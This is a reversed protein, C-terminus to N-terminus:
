RFNKPWVQSLFTVSLSVYLSSKLCYCFLVQLNQHVPQAHILQTGNCCLLGVAYHPQILLLTVLLDLSTIRGRATANTDLKLSGLALFVNVHLHDPLQLLYWILLPQSQIQEANPLSPQPRDKQQRCSSWPLAYLLCLYVRRPPTCQYSLITM